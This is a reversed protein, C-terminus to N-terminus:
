LWTFLMKKECNAFKNLTELGCPDEGPGVTDNASGPVVGAGAELDPLGVRRGFARM